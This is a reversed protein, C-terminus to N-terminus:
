GSTVEGLPSLSVPLPSRARAQFYATLFGATMEKLLPFLAEAHSQTDKGHASAQAIHRILEHCAAAGEVIATARTSDKEGDEYMRIGKRRKWVAEIFNLIKEPEYTKAGIQWTLSERELAWARIRANSVEKTFAKWLGRTFFIERGERLGESQEVGGGRERIEHYRDEIWRAVVANGEPFGPHEFHPGLLLLYGGGMAKECAAIKGIFVEEAVAPETLFISRSTFGSYYALPTIDDSPQLPPGGYLPVRIEEGGYVPVGDCIRVCVEERVPHFVFSCGYSTCYKNPLLRAPPLDQTLNNIRGKVFNFHRLPEKSSHLPLYAGACSGIYIGGSEIFQRIALAGEPGLAGAVGFTDGGSILLIEIDGLGAQIDKEELFSLHRFGYRELLDVFWTWSHSAGGGVYVAAHPLRSRPLRSADVFPQAGKRRVRSRDSPVEKSHISNVM